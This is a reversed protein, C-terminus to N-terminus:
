EAGGTRRRISILVHALHATLRKRIRGACGFLEKAFSTSDILGFDRFSIFTHMVQVSYQKASASTGQTLLFNLVDTSSYTCCGKAGGRSRIVGARVSISKVALAACIYLRKRRSSKKQRTQAAGVSGISSLLFIHVVLVPYQNAPTSAFQRGCFGFDDISSKSSEGEAGVSRMRISILVNALEATLVREAASSRPRVTKTLAQARKLPGLAALLFFHIVLISYQSAFASTIQVLMFDLPYGAPEPSCGFAAHSWGAGQVSIGEV